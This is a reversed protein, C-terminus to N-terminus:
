QATFELTERHFLEVKQHACHALANDQQCIYVEDAISQIAPLLEM